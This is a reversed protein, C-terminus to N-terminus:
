RGTAQRSAQRRWAFLRRARPDAWILGDSPPPSTGTTLAEVWARSSGPFRAAFVHPYTAVLRRNRPTARVAWVLHASTPEGWAALAVNAAEHRKRTSSRAAAGVDGIVNWCEVVIVTRRAQSSLLVDVSRWPDAPRTGLEFRAEYDIRRGLAITLEQIELHGADTPPAAPDRSLSVHLPRGLAVAVQELQRLKPDIEAREMRGVVPRTLGARAGLQGQTWGRAERTERFERAIRSMVDGALREAELEVRRRKKTAMYAM